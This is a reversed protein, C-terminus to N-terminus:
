GRVMSAVTGIMAPLLASLVAPLFGGRQSVMRRKTGVSTRSSVFKRIKQRNQQLRKAVSNPLRKHKLKRVERSMHQIFVNNASKMARLRQPGKLRRLKKIIGKFRKAAGGRQGGGCRSKRRKVRRSKRRAMIKRM